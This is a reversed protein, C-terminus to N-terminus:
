KYKETVNLQKSESRIVYSVGCHRKINLPSQKKKIFHTKSIATNENEKQLQIPVYEEHFKKQFHLINAYENRLSKDFPNIIVDVGPCDSMKESNIKKDLDPQAERSSRLFSNRQKFYEFKSKSMEEAAKLNLKVKNPDFDFKAKTLNVEFDPKLALCMSNNNLKEKLQMARKKGLFKSEKIEYYKKLLKSTSKTPKATKLKKKVKPESSGIQLEIKFKLGPGPIFKSTESTSRNENCSIIKMNSSDDCTSGGPSLIKQAMFSSNNSFLAAKPINIYFNTEDIIASM